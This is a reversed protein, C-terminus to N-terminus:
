PQFLLKAESGLSRHFAQFLCHLGETRFSGGRWCVAWAVSPKEDKPAAGAKAGTFPLLPSGMWISRAGPPSASLLRTNAPAPLLTAGASNGFPLLKPKVYDANKNISVDPSPYCQRISVVCQPAEKVIACPQVPSHRTLRWFYFIHLGDTFYSWRSWLPNAIVPLVDVNASIRLRTVRTPCGVAANRFISCMSGAVIGSQATLYDHESNAPIRNRLISKKRPPIVFVFVQNFSCHFLNGNRLTSGIFFIVLGRCCGEQNPNILAAAWSCCMGSGDKVPCPIPLTSQRLLVPLRNTENLRRSTGVLSPTFSPTSHVSQHSSFSCGNGTATKRSGNSGVCWCTSKM